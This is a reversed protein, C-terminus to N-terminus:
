MKELWLAVRHHLKGLTRGISHPIVWTESGFLLTARVLAKYFKGPTWPDAGGEGLIRLMREWRRRAKRLNGVVALWNDDLVTLLRCLYKFKLVAELIRGYAQFEM